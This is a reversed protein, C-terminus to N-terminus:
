MQVLFPLVHEIVIDAGCGVRCMQRSTSEEIKMKKIRRKENAEQCHDNMGKKWLALELMTTAEKLTRYKDECHTLHEQIVAIFDRRGQSGESIDATYVKNLLTHVYQQVKTFGM